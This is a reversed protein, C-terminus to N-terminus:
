PANRDRTRLSHSRPTNSNVSRIALPGKITQRVRTDGTGHSQIAKADLAQALTVDACAGAAQLVVALQLLLPPLSSARKKNEYGVQGRGVPGGADVLRCGFAPV